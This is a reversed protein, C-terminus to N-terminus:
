ALAEPLKEKLIKAIWDADPREVTCGGKTLDEKTVQVYKIEAVGKLATRLEELQEDSIGAGRLVAKPIKKESEACHM